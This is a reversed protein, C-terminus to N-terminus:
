PNGRILIHLPTQRRDDGGGFELDAIETWFGCAAENVHAGCAGVRGAHRSYDLESVNGFRKVTVQFGAGRVGTHREGIVQEPFEVFDGAAGRQGLEALAEVRATWDVRREIGDSQQALFAGRSSRLFCPTSFTLTNHIRYESQSIFYV